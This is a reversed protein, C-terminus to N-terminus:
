RIGYSLESLFGATPLSVGGHNNGGKGCTCPRVGLLRNLFVHKIICTRQRSCRAFTLDPKYERCVVRRTPAANWGAPNVGQLIHLRERVQNVGTGNCQGCKKEGTGKCNPCEPDGQMNRPLGPPPSASKEVRVKSNFVYDKGGSGINDLGAAAWVLWRGRHRLGAAAPGLHLARRQRGM